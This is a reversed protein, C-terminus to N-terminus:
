CPGLIDWTDFVALEITPPSGLSLGGPKGGFWQATKSSIDAMSHHIGSGIQILNPIDLVYEVGMSIHTWYGDFM